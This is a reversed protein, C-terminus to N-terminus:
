KEKDIRKLKPLLQHKTVRVANTLKLSKKLAGKDINDLFLPLYRCLTKIMDNPVTKM